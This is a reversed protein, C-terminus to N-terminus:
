PVLGLLVHLADPRDAIVDAGWHLSAGPEPLYGWDAAITRTGAARGALVDREDDGVFVVTEPAVSLRTCAALVPDPAPKPRATTDGAILCALRGSWGAQELVAIALREIKNTVVGWRIGRRELADLLAEVGDFPRSDVWCAAHYLEIFAPRHALREDAHLEGLGAELIAPAGRSALRRLPALDIDPLRLRQRLAALAAILDPATDALTGDLDFLVAAPREVNM